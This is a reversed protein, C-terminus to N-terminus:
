RNVCGGDFLAAIRAEFGTPRERLWRGCVSTIVDPM